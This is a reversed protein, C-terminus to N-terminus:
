KCLLKLHYTLTDMMDKYTFLDPHLLHHLAMGDVLAHLRNVELDTQLDDRALRMNQLSQIIRYFGRHIEDYVRKSLSELTSDVLAKASFVFWVEMEVRKAADVPLMECIIERLADLPEGEHSKAEVRRKVRESVFEMSFLLLESQSSFYYRLSGASPGPAKAIHRVSAGELGKEVIVKWTAEAIQVKRSEHDVKKPM